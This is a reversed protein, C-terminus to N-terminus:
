MSITSPPLPPAQPAGITITICLALTKGEPMTILASILDCAKASPDCAIDTSAVHTQCHGGMEAQMDLKALVAPALAGGGGEGEGGACRLL